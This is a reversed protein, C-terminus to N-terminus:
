VTNRNIKINLVCIHIYYKLKNFFLDINFISIYFYYSIINFSLKYLLKCINEKHDKMENVHLLKQIDKITYYDFIYIENRCLSCNEYENLFLILLCRKHIIGNCCKFNINENENSLKKAHCEDVFCEDLCICCLNSSENGIYITCEM